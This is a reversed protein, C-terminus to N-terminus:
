FFRGILRLFRATDNLRRIHSTQGNYSTRVPCWGMRFGARAALILMETEMEYRDTEPQVRTLVERRYLRFGCQSDPIRRGAAISTILSSTRNSFIRDPPMGPWRLERLGVVLGSDTEILRRIFSPIFAPDHQGDGDLTFVAEAGADLCAKFGSKLAAGKGRNRDHRIVQIKYARAIRGTGDESGDDVVWIRKAPLFELIKLLVTNLRDAVNYSPIVAHFDLKGAAHRSM